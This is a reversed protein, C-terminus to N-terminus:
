LSVTKYFTNGNHTVEFRYSEYRASSFDFRKGVSKGTKLVEEHLLANTAEDYVKIEVPTEDITLLNVSVMNNDVRYYPKYVTEVKGTEVITKTNTFLVPVREIKIDDELVFYYVGNPLDDFKYRKANTSLSKHNYNYLIEGRADEFSISMPHSSQELFLDVTRNDDSKVSLYFDNARTMALTAISLVVVLMSKRLTNKM